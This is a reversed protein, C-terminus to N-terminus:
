SDLIRQLQQDKKIISIAENYEESSPGPQIALEQTDIAQGTKMDIRIVHTIMQIITYSPHLM